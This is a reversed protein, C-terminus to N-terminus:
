SEHTPYSLILGGRHLGSDSQVRKLYTTTNCPIEGFAFVCNVVQIRSVSLNPIRGYVKLINKGDVDHHRIVGSVSWCLMATNM